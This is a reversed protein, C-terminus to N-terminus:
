AAFLFHSRAASTCLVSSAGLFVHAVNIRGAVRDSVAETVCAVYMAPNVDEEM